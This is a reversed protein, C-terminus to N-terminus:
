FAEEMPLEPGDGDDEDEVFCFEKYTLGMKKALKRIMMYNRHNEEQLNNIRENIWRMEDKANPFIPPPTSAGSGISGQKAYSSIVKNGVYNWFRGM